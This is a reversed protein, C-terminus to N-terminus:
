IFFTLCIRVKLGVERVSLGLTEFCSVVAAILEAEAEVGTVGWM